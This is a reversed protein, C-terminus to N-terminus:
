SHFPRAEFAKILTAMSIVDMRVQICGLHRCDLRWGQSVWLWWVDSGDPGDGDTQLLAWLSVSSFIGLNQSIDVTDKRWPELQENLSSCHVITSSGFGQGAHEADGQAAEACSCRRWSSGLSVHGHEAVKPPTWQVVPTSIGSPQLFTNALYYGDLLQWDYNSSIQGLLLNRAARSVIM